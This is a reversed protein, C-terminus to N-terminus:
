GLGVKKQVEALKKDAIPRAKDAGEKVVKEIYGSEATIERFREQV